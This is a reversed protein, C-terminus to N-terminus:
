FSDLMIARRTASERSDWAPVSDTGLVRDLVLSAAKLNGAKAMALLKEGIAKVDEPTVTDLFADRFDLVRIRPSDTNQTPTGQKIATM